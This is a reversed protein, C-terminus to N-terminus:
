FRSVVVDKLSGLPLKFVLFLRLIRSSCSPFNPKDDGESDKRSSWSSVVQSGAEVSMINVEVNINFEIVNVRGRSECRVMVVKRWGVISSSM